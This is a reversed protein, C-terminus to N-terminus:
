RLRGRALLLCEFSLLAIQITALQFFARGVLALQGGALQVYLSDAIWALTLVLAFKSRALLAVGIALELLHALLFRGPAFRPEIIARDTLAAWSQSIWYLSTLASIVLLGGVLYRLVFLWPFGGRSSAARATDGVAGDALRAKPPAFPNFNKM